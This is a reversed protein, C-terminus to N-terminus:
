PCLADTRELCEGTHGERFPLLKKLVNVSPVPHKWVFPRFPAVKDFLDLEHWGDLHGRRLRWAHCRLAVVRRDHLCISANYHVTRQTRSSSSTVIPLGLWLLLPSAASWSAPAPIPPAEITWWTKSPPWDEAAKRHGAIE